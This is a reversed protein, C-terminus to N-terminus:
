VRESSRCWAGGTTAGASVNSDGVYTTDTTGDKNGYAIGYGFAWFGLAGVCADLVNKLM